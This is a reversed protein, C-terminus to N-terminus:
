GKAGKKGPPRGTRITGAPFPRGRNKRKELRALGQLIWYTALEGMTISSDEEQFYVVAARLRDQVEPDIWWNPKIKSSPSV